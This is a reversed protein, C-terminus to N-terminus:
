FFYHNNVFASCRSNGDINFECFPILWPLFLIYDKGFLNQLTKNALKKKKKKFLSADM